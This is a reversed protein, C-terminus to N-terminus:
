LLETVPQEAQCLAYFTPCLGLTAAVALGVRVHAQEEREKGLEVGEKGRGWHVNDGALVASAGAKWILQVPACPWSAWAWCPCYKSEAYQLHAQHCM